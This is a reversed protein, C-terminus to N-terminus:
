YSPVDEPIGHSPNEAACSIFTERRRLHEEIMRQYAEAPEVELGVVKAADDFRRLQCMESCWSNMAWNELETGQRLM